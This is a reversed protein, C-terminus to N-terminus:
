LGGITEVKASTRASMLDTEEKGNVIFYIISVSQYVTKACSSIVAGPVSIFLQSHQM